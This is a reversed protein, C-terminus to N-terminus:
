DARWKTQQLITKQSKYAHMGANGGEKGTNGKSTSKSKKVQRKVTKPMAKDQGVEQTHKNPSHYFVVGKIRM